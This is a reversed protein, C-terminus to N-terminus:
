SPPRQKNAFGHDTAMWRGFEKVAPAAAKQEALKGLEAEALNGAGAECIFTKDQRSFSQASAPMATLLAGVSAAALLGKM